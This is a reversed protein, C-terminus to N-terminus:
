WVRKHAFKDPCTHQRHKRKKYITLRIPVWDLYKNSCSLFNYM